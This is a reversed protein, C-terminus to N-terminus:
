TTPAPVTARSENAPGSTSSAGGAGSGAGSGSPPPAMLPIAVTDQIHRTNTLIMVARDTGMGWGVAPPQGHELAFLYEEDPVAMAEEDGADHAAAQQRFRRRQLRPDNNEDYANVVEMGNIFLEFRRSIGPRDAHCKALISMCEPHNCVFTPSAM